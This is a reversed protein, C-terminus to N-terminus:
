SSPIAPYLREVCLKLGHALKEIIPTWERRDGEHISKLDKFARILSFM